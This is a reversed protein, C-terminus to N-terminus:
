GAGGQARREARGYGAPGAVCLLRVGLGAREAAAEVLALGQRAGREDPYLGFWSSGSGSLRWHGLDLGELLARWRALEPVAALAPRELDNSLQERLERAGLELLAAGDRDRPARYSAGPELGLAAYVAATPASVAPTVLAVVWGSTPAPLVELVEGRGRALAAGTSEAAAFFPADSGVEALWRTDDAADLGLGLALRAALLAAAADSSGGGLGAGSPVCKELEVELALDTRAAFPALARLVLNSADRPVDASAAPGVVTLRLAEDGSGRAVVRVSVTDVLDIAVLLTELEHYGDARRGHVDLVLNLKAPAAVRVWDARGSM